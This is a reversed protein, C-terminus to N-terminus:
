EKTYLLFNLVIIEIEFAIHNASVVHGTLLIVFKNELVNIM